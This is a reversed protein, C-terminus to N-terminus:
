QIKANHTFVFQPVWKLVNNRLDKLPSGWLMAHGLTHADKQVRDVVHKRIKQYREPINGWEEVPTQEILTAIVYADRLGMSAGMGTAPMMAHAADGALAVRGQHWSGLKMENMFGAYTDENKIKKLIDHAMYSINDFHADLDYKMVDEHTDLPAVFAVATHEKSPFIGMFQHYDWVQQVDQSPLKVGEPLFFTWVAAGSYVAKSEPFIMRRTVSHVGDAGIVLAYEKVTGDTFTVEVCDEKHVLIEISMDKKIHTKSLKSRLAGHLAARDLTISDIGDAKIHFQRILDGEPTLINMTETSKGVDRAKTVLELRRLVEIGVPMITVGFGAKHWDPMREVIDAVHGRQELLAALAVGTIGAGVILINHEASM